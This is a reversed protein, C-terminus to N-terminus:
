PVGAGWLLLSGEHCIASALLESGRYYCPDWLGPFSLLPGDRLLARRVPGEVRFRYHRFTRRPHAIYGYELDDDYSGAFQGGMDAVAARFGPHSEWPRLFGPILPRRGDNSWVVTDCARVLCGVVARDETATRLELIQAPEMAQNYACEGTPVLGFAFVRAVHVSAKDPM